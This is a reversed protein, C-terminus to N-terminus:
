LWAFLKDFLEGIRENLQGYFMMLFLLVLISIIMLVIQWMEMGKKDVFLGNM